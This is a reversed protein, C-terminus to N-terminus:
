YRLKAPYRVMWVILVVIVITFLVFLTVALGFAPGFKFGISALSTSRCLPSNRMQAGLIVGVMTFLWCLLILVHVFYQCCLVRGCIIPVLALVFGLASFLVCIIFLAAFGDTKTTFSSCFVDHNRNSQHTGAASFGSVYLCDVSISIAASSYSAIPTALAAVGFIFMLVMIALMLFNDLRCRDIRPPNFPTPMYDYGLPNETPAADENYPPEGSKVPPPANPQNDSGRDVNNVRSASSWDQTRPQQNNEMM